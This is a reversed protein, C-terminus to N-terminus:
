QQCFGRIAEQLARVSPFGLATAAAPLGGFEGTLASVSKGHCNPAGPTGAFGPNIIVLALPQSALVAFDGLDEGTPSFKRISFQLMNAAFVNGAIDVDIRAAFALGTAAFVGLDQGAPSFKRITNQFAGGTNSV